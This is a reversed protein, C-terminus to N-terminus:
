VRSVISVGSFVGIQAIFTGEDRRYKFYFREYLDLCRYVSSDLPSGLAVRIQKVEM